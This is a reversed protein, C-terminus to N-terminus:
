GARSGYDRHVEFGPFSPLQDDVVLPIGDLDAPPGGAQGGLDQLVEPRVRIELPEAAGARRAIELIDGAIDPVAWHAPPLRRVVERGSSSAAEPPPPFAAQTM